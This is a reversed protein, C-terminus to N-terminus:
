HEWLILRLWEERITPPDDVASEDAIRSFCKQVTRSFRPVPVPSTRALGRYNHREPRLGDESSELSGRPCEPFHFEAEDEYLLTPFYEGRAPLLPHLNGSQAKASPTAIELM